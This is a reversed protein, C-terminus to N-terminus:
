GRQQFEFPYIVRTPRGNAAKPFLMDVIVDRVCDRLVASSSTNKKLQVDTVPGSPTILWSFTLRGGAKPDTVLAKEFCGRLQSKSRQIVQRVTERDLGGEVSFNGEEFKGMGDGGAGGRGLMGATEFNGQGGPRGIPGTANPNYKGRGALTTSAASLGAGSGNIQGGGGTGLDGMAGSKVTLDAASNKSALADSLNASTNIQDARVGPGKPGASRLAGLLGLRNVNAPKGQNNLGARNTPSDVPPKNAAADANKAKDAQVGLKPASKEAVKPKAKPPTEKPPPVEKPEPPKEAEKEPPTPPPPPPPPTADKVVITAVRAPPIEEKVKDEPALVKVFLGVLLFLGLAIAASRRLDRDGPLSRPVPPVYLPEVFRLFFDHDKWRIRLLEGTKVDQANAPTVRRGQLTIMCGPMQELLVAVVQASNEKSKWELNLEKVAAIPRRKKNSGPRLHLVDEIAGNDWRSQVVELLAPGSVVRTGPNLSASIGGGIVERDELRDEVFEFVFGSISTPEESLMAGSGHQEEEENTPPTKAVDILTWDGQLPDFKGDGIWELLFQVAAVGGSRIVIDCTPSRGATMVQKRLEATALRLKGRSISITKTRKM